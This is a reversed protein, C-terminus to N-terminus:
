TTSELSILQGKKLHLAIEDGTTEIFSIDPEKKPGLPTPVCIIICDIESLRSFDSTAQFKSSSICNEVKESPIHKIYSQGSNLKDVKRSDIDFGLVKFNEDAFRIVLPLGVYGLGIIGITAKREKLKDILIEKMSLHGYNVTKLPM